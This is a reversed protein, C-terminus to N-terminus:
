WWGASRPTNLLVDDCGCQKAFAMQEDTLENFQGLAVRMPLNDLNMVTSGEM